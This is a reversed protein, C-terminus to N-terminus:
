IRGGIHLRLLRVEQRRSSLGRPNLNAEILLNEYLFEAPFSSNALTGGAKAASLFVADPRKESFWREVPDQRTLELESRAATLITCTEQGLRRVIASGVLGRHGAVFVRKGSLDFPAM